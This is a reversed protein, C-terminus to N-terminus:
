HTLLAWIIFIALMIGITLFISGFVYADRVQRKNPPDVLYDELEGNDVLRQYELPREAKFRELSMKGTFVVLDMPFSEPRLHTHFFHFFFIFGTALLAEDSHIVHAANLTWGPLFQTFFGPVWLFLGSVGIMAVGWFVALYDFKEFYTYRDGKPREGLYLFYRLNGFFDMVDKPQPTMSNPGWFMGKEGKIFARYFVQIVHTILYGFTGIAAIRHLFRTSDIGGLVNVLTQAWPADNFKLPLGTLALVLFTTIIVIHMRMNGRRFRRVWQGSGGRREEEFEGRLTGVLSRQLWLLDHIGFFAFVGILLSTMFVWIVYVAFNKDPDAPNSHPDFTAFSATINEHCKGCTELRHDPSVTSDPNDAGTNRHPTHCDACTAGRSMGLHLAQGHFSDGFTTFYEEHCGGCKEAGANRAAYTTPDVIMHNSHCDVCVPGDKDAQWALGHASENKWHEFLIQHCTGCMEPSNQHATPARGEDVKMIRHDGHCDSCSPANILGSLLLAKGHEGTLYGDILEPPENHCKGCRQIQNVPSVASALEDVPVIDHPAGHCDLCAAEGGHTSRGIARLISSHCSGCSEEDTLPEVGRKHRKDVVNVHCEACAVDAHVTHEISVDDHCDGCVLDQAKAPAFALVLITAALLGAFRASSTM